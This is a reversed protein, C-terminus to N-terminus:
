QALRQQIWRVNKFTMQRKVYKSIQSNKADISLTFYHYCFQKFNDVKLLWIQISIVPSQLPNSPLIFSFSSNIIIGLQRSWYNINLNPNNVVILFVCNPVAKQPVINQKQMDCTHHRSSMRSSNDELSDPIYTQFEFYHDRSSLSRFNM